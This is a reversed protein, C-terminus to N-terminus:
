GRRESEGDPDPPGAPLHGQGPCPPRTPLRPRRTPPCPPRTRDRGPSCVVSATTSRTPPPPAARPSKALLELVLADLDAPVGSRVRSPPVPEKTLHASMMSAPSTTQFPTHGTLLEHLVCGLSYLDSRANGPHGDFREPPMYPPFTGMVKSSPLSEMFRAIGFDLIKVQGDRTLM